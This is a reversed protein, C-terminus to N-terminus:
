ITRFTFSTTIGKNTKRECINDILLHGEFMAKLMEESEAIKEFKETAWKPMNVKSGNAVITTQKGYMGKSNFFFGEVKLAQGVYDSLKTFQLDRLELNEPLTRITGNLEEFIKEAM